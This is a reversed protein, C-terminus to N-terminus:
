NKEKHKEVWGSKVWEVEQEERLDMGKHSKADREVNVHGSCKRFLYKILSGLFVLASHSSFPWALLTLLM